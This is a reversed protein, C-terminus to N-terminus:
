GRGRGRRCGRRAPRRRARTSGPAASSRRRLELRARRRRPLRPRARRRDSRARAAYGPSTFHIGDEIFWEDRALAAWDFVRMNPYGRAPRSCPTTGARCTRRRTPARRRGPVQRDGLAGAPRRDRVDDPRDARRPGGVIRRLRRGRRQHRARAGLVRPLRRRRSRSRGRLCQDRGGPDRRDLDRGRDGDPVRHRRRQAYRATIRDRRDPLYDHSILGESTSDGIHVVRRCSTRVPGGASTALRDGAGPGGSPPPASAAYAPAAVDVGGSISASLGTPRASPRCAPLGARPWRSPPPRPRSRRGASGRCPGSAFRARGPGAGSGASRATACPSRSTAGPSRRSRSRRRRRCRPARSTSARTRSRTDDARDGPLALPLHRLLSRRDLAAAALRPRPRAPHGPARARRRGGRHRVLAAGPGTPYLFASDYSTRWVLLAIM